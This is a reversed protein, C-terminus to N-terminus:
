NHNIENRFEVDPIFFVSFMDCYLHFNYKFLPFFNLLLFQEYIIRQYQERLM